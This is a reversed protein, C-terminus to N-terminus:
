SGVFGVAFKDSPEDYGEDRVVFKCLVVACSAM